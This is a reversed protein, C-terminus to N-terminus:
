QRNRRELKAMETMAEALVKGAHQPDVGMQILLFANFSMLTSLM